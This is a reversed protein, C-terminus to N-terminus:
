LEAGLKAVSAMGGQVAKFNEFGNHELFLQVEYSRLGTNCVLVISKDKPFEDLREALEENPICHWENPYKEMLAEANSALRTDIFCTDSNREKWISVFEDPDLTHNRGELINEAVNGITNIIDMASAFPPSYCVELNSIDEITPKDKLLPAVANIRGVLADGLQSIGQIGLVQRSKRDVVMDLAMIAKEPYFHARDMQEIHVNIADYGAALANEITLGAGACSMEFLKVCWSGVAGTFTSKGGALNTGIVRGQRNAMSGLPFFGQEGSIQNPITVCDGGSYIAPDSTQMFENVILAGRENCELGAAKALETNPAVGASMIVLDADITRQNTVVSTVKGNEGEFRQVTEGLFVNVDNAQFDKLAMKSMTSSYFNPLIQDQMEVVSTEIGWMDTLAVAMELGIFGGGVIVASNIGGASVAKRILEADDLNTCPTIGELTIGEIPPMNPKAGTAIVLKDYSITDEKGEGNKVTVSKAARDISTVMTQTLVDVDKNQKFFKEDRIIHYPTAQLEEVNNVEGSVFYPIGCGGYSIRPSQDIMTVKSEPELRKFRCAAKPGLAVAGIVVVHQSM